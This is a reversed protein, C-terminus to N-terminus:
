AAVVLAALADLMSETGSRLDALLTATPIGTQTLRVETHGNALEFLYITMVTEVTRGALFGDVSVVTQVIRVPPHLELFAGSLKILQGEPTRFETWWAGGVQGDADLAVLECGAPCSWQALIGPDTWAHYLDGASAAFTRSIMLVQDTATM